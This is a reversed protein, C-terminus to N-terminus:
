INVLSVLSRPNRENISNVKCRWSWSSVVAHLVSLSTVDKIILRIFFSALYFYYVSTWWKKGLGHWSNYLNKASWRILCMNWRKYPGRWNRQTRTRAVTTGPPSNLANARARIDNFVLVSNENNLTHVVPYRIQKSGCKRRTADLYLILRCLYVCEGM